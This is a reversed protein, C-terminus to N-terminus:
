GAKGIGGKGSAAKKQEIREEIGLAIAWRRITTYNVQVGFEDAIDFGITVFSKGDLRRRELWDAFNGSQQDLLAFITSKGRLVQIAEQTAM